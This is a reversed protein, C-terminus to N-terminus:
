RKTAVPCGGHRVKVSFRFWLSALMYLVLVATFMTVATYVDQVVGAGALGAPLAASVVLPLAGGLM